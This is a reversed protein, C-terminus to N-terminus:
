WFHRKIQVFWVKQNMVPEHFIHRKIQQTTGEHDGMKPRHKQDVFRVAGM